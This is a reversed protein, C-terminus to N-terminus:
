KRTSIAWRFTELWEASIGAKIRHDEHYTKGMARDPSLRPPLAKTWALWESLSPDKFRKLWNWGFSVHAIEDILIKKMLDSCEPDGHEKFASGYMPAYDLNAMEFTLSMVSLYQEPKRLYPTYSWFHKHLPLDELSIGLRKMQKLYLSVHIQEEKLTNAVGRRFHKPADPFALLAYAMIEVALLEHGAFRHMCIARKDPDCLEHLKPLKDRRSHKQFGMGQPRTPEKWFLPPGPNYDTLRDPSFLKEELTDTSLIRTAWDQLEM